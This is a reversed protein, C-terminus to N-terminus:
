IKFKTQRGKGKVLIFQGTMTIYEFVDELKAVGLIRKVKGITTWESKLQNTVDNAMQLSFGLNEKEM